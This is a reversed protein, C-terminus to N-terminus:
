LSNFTLGKNTNTIEPLVECHLTLNVVAMYNEALQLADVLDQTPVM